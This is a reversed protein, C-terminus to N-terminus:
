LANRGQAKAKAWRERAVAAIKAKASASLHRRPKLGGEAGFHAHAVASRPWSKSGHRGNTMPLGNMIAELDRELIEIKERIALARRLQETSLNLLSNSM